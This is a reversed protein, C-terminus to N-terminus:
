GQKEEWEKREQDVAMLYLEHLIENLADGGAMDWVSPKGFKNIMRRELEDKVKFLDM